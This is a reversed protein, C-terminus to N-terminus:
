TQGKSAGVSSPLLHSCLDEGGAESPEEGPIPVAERDGLLLGAPGARGLEEPGPSHNDWTGWALTMEVPEDPM